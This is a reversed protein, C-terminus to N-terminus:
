AFFRQWPKKPTQHAKRQYQIHRHCHKIKIGHMGMSTWHVIEQGSNTRIHSMNLNMIPMQVADDEDALRHISKSCNWTLICLLHFLFTNVTVDNCTVITTTGPVRLLAFCLLLSCYRYKHVIYLTSHVRLLSCPRHITDRSEVRFARNWTGHGHLACKPSRANQFSQISLLWTWVCFWCRGRHDKADVSLRNVIM